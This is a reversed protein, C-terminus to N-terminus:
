RLLLLAAIPVLIAAIAFIPGWVQLRKLSMSADDVVPQLRGLLKEAEQATKELQQELQETENLTSTIRDPLQTSSLIEQASNLTQDFKLLTAAVGQTFQLESVVGTGVLTDGAALIKGRGPGALIEVYKEGLLGLIGIWAEDDARVKLYTPLWIKVRVQPKSISEDRQVSVEVVEGVEVGAFKVPAGRLVGSASDFLLEITYGPRFIQWNQIGFIIVGTLFLGLCVFIGVKLALSPKTEM